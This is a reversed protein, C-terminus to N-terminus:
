VREPTHSFRFCSVPVGPRGLVHERCVRRCQGLRVIGWPITEGKQEPM